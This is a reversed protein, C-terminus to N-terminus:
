VLVRVVREALREVEAQADRKREFPHQDADWTSVDAWVHGFWKGEELQVAGLWHSDGPENSLLAYHGRKIRFWSKRFSCGNLTQHQRWGRISLQITKAPMLARAGCPCQWHIM